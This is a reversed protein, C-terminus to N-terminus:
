FEFYLRIYAAEKPSIKKIDGSVDIYVLKEKYDKLIGDFEKKGDIPKYLKVEVRNGLYYLFEREKKLQRGLGPSSVELSYAEPIFDDQDLIEELARSFAECDDLDVGGAKDIYVRLVQGTSEKKYEADVVHFSMQEALTESIELVQEEIKSM